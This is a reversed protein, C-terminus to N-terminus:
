ISDPPSQALLQRFLRWDFAPGPDTKRTPAIDCHGVIREATIGPYTAQLARTVAALTAYQVCEYPDLDTGELEIGVSFDNCNDRGQFYSVGAHWARAVFPVFQTVAGDREILLHASVQLDRLEAFAPHLACDLSNTFLAAVYGCGFQGPPLSINHIVLLDVLAGPPRENFNPSPCHTAPYLWGAADITFM